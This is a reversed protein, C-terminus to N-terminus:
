TIFNMEQRSSSGLCCSRAQTGAAWGDHSGVLGSHGNVYASNKRVGAADLQTSCLNNYENRNKHRLKEEMACFVICGLGKDLVVYSWDWARPRGYAALHEGKRGKVM